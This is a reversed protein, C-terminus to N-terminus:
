REEGRVIEELLDILENSSDAYVDSRNCNTFHGVYCNKHSNYTVHVSVDEIKINMSM